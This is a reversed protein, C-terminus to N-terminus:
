DQRARCPIRRAPRTTSTRRIWYSMSRQSKGRIWVEEFYRRGLARNQDAASLAAKKEAPEQAAIQSSFVLTVSLLLAKILIPNLLPKM